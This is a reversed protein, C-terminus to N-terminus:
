PFRRIPLELIILMRYRLCPLAILLLPYRNQTGDREWDYPHMIKDGFRECKPPDHMIESQPRWARMREATLDDAPLSVDGARAGVGHDVPTGFIMTTSIFSLVDGDLRMHLPHRRQGAPLPAPGHPIPYAKL